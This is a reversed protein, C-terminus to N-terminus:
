GFFHRTFEGGSVNVGQLPRNAAQADHRAAAQRMALWDIARTSVILTSAAPHVGALAQALGAPFQEDNHASALALVDMQERFFLASVPASRQSTQLAALAVTLQRGAQRCAEAIATAAFSVAKEVNALQEESADAPQWLDVLLALDQSRREDFQRVVLAGRRASTRWHIWRRNDGARWDRLGYFDAELLGRRHMRRGGAAQARAKQAWDHDLRGLKPHVLLSAPQDIIVSHRVLGLPFRTSVRLPGFHYRGRRSLRGLYPVQRTEGAAIAPFFVRVIDIEAADAADEREVIDEVEVGWLAMWSWHNTVSVDVTLRQEAHVQPPLKREVTLRRLALRGYVLAFVLLGAM